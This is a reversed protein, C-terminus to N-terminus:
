PQDHYPAESAPREPPEHFAAVFPANVWLVLSVTRSTRARSFAEAAGSSM